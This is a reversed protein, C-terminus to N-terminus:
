SSCMGTNSLSRCSASSLTRISAGSIKRTRPLRLGSNTLGYTSCSRCIDSVSSFRTTLIWQRPAILAVPDFYIILCVLAGVGGDDAAPLPMIVFVGGFRLPESTNKRRHRIRKDHSGKIISYDCCQTYYLKWNGLHDFTMMFCIDLLSYSFYWCYRVSWSCPLVRVGSPSRIMQVLRSFSESFM